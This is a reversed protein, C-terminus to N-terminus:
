KALIANAVSVADATPDGSPSTATVRILVAGRQVYLTVENGASTKGALARVKDGIPEVQVAAAGSQAAQDAASYDLAEATASATGFRQISVYLSITGSPSTDGGIRLGFSRTVNGKWKWAKFRKAADVPDRYNKTVEALSRKQDGTVVLGAPVEQETPLMDGIKPAHATGGGSQPTGKNSSAPASGSAGGEATASLKSAEVKGQVWDFRWQANTIPGFQPIQVSVTTVSSSGRPSEFGLAYTEGHGPDILLRPQKASSYFCKLSWTDGATDSLGVSAPDFVFDMRQSGVNLFYLVLEVGPQSGNSCNNSHIAYMGQVAHADITMVADGSRWPAHNGLVSGGITTRQGVEPIGTFAKSTSSMEVKGQVWAFKWKAGRVQGLEPVDVVATTVASIGTPSKFGIVYKLTQGPDLLVRPETASSGACWFEWVNGDDSSVRVLSPVVIFDARDTGVNAYTLTVEVGPDNGNCPNGHVENMGQVANVDVTLVADGTRWSEHNALVTGPKTNLDATPQPTPTRTATPVATETPAPTPTPPVVTPSPMATATSVLTPTPITATLGGKEPIVGALLVIAPVAGANRESNAVGAPLVGGTGADFQGESGSPDAVTLSGSEILLGVPGTFAHDPLEVGPAWTTRALFLRVPPAPLIGADGDLLVTITPGTAGTAAPSAEGAPAGPLLSFRLLSAPQGGRNRLAYTTGAKLFRQAGASLTAAAGLANTVAVSGKEVSLLAPGAAQQKGLDAGAPVVLRELMLHAPAAPLADATGVALGTVAIGTPLHFGIDVALPSAQPSAKASAPPSAKSANPSAKPTTASSALGVADRRAVTLTGALLALILALALTRRAM